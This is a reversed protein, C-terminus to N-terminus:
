NDVEVEEMDEDLDGGDHHFTDNYQAENRSVIVENNELIWAKHGNHGRNKEAALTSVGEVFNHRAKYVSLAHQLRTPLQSVGITGGHTLAQMFATHVPNDDSMTLCGEVSLVQGYCWVFGKNWTYRDFLDVANYNQINFVLINNLEENSLNYKELIQSYSLSYGRQFHNNNKQMMHSSWNYQDITLAILVLNTSIRTHCQSFAYSLNSIADMTTPHLILQHWKGKARYQGDLVTLNGEEGTMENYEDMTMVSFWLSQNNEAKQEILEQWQLTTEAPKITTITATEYNAFLSVTNYVSKFAGNGLRPLADYNPGDVALLFNDVVEVPMTTAAAVAMPSPTVSM